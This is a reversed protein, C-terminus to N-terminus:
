ASARKRALTPAKRPTPSPLAVDAAQAPGPAPDPESSVSAPQPPDTPAAQTPVEAAAHSLECAAEWYGALRDRLAQSTEAFLRGGRLDALKRLEQQSNCCQTELAAVAADPLDQGHARAFTALVSLDHDEGLLQSMEKAEAARAGFEEPWGRSLLQMHRWHQQVSKRWNHFNDDSPQRQCTRRARRAKKYSKAMGDFVHAIDIADLTPGSLFKRTGALRKIARNRADLVKDPAAQDLASLIEVLRANGGDPLAGHRAELMRLTQLMVHGDRAGALLRGTGVLRKAERQYDTEGLGLRILRLLARLRKLCRRADHVARAADEQGRLKAEAMEVQDLGVRRLGEALPERLKLRYSM